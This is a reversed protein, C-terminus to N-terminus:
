GAARQAAPGVVVVMMGAAAGQPLAEGQLVVAAAGAVPSVGVLGSSIRQTPDM